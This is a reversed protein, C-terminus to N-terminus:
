YNVNYGIGLTYKYYTELGTVMSKLLLFGACSKVFAYGGYLINRNCNIDTGNRPIADFSNGRWHSEYVSRCLVTVEVM